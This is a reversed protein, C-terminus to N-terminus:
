GPTGVREDVTKTFDDMLTEKIILPNVYERWYVVKGDRFRIISLYRNSYPTTSPRYVTHSTYEAILMDPDALEYFQAIRYDYPDFDSTARELFARLAERGAIHDQMTPIPLYPWDQFVDEALCDQFRDFQKSGLYGLMTSFLAVNRAHRSTEAM